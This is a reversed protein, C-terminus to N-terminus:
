MSFQLKSISDIKINIHLSIYGKLINIKIHQYTQSNQYELNGDNTSDCVSSFEFRHGSRDCKEAMGATESDDKGDIEEDTLYDNM